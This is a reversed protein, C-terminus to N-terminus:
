SFAAAVMLSATVLTTVGVRTQWYYHDLDPKLRQWDLWLLWGFLIAALWHQNAYPLTLYSGWASLAILNSLLSLRRLHSQHSWLTGAMFSVILVSYSALWTQSDIALLPLQQWGQAIALAGIIFPLIGAAALWRQLLPNHM